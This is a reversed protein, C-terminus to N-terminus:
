LFEDLLVICPTGEKISATICKNNRYWYKMVPVGDGWKQTGYVATGVYPSTVRGIKVCESNDCFRPLIKELDKYKNM